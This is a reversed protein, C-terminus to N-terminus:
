TTRYTGTILIRGSQGIDTVDVSTLNGGSNYLVQWATGPTAAAYGCLGSRPTTWNNDGFIAITPVGTTDVAIINFPMGGITLTGSGGSQSTLSLDVSITVVNGIKTYSGKQLAYVFTGANTLTPTFTGEEYDNLLESTMGAANANAAFSIGATAGGLILNGGLWLAGGVSAGGAVQLAGTATASAQTVNTITVANAVVGSSTTIGIVRASGGLWLAGGVSAGGAVQLAGTATANAQTTDSIKVASALTSATTVEKSLPNYFLFHPTSGNARIPSVLFSNATSTDLVSGSANLIISNAAQNTQGAGNGIAIANNGQSQFGAGQGIAIASDGQRSSGAFYGISVAYQTQTSTSAYSGIAVAGTGQNLSGASTGIAVSEAGQGWGAQSGLAISSGVVGTIGGITSTTADLLVYGAGTTVSITGDAAVNVNTGIKVGGLQAATAPTSVYTSYTATLASNVLTSTNFYLLGATTATFHSSLQVVGLQTGSATTVSRVATQVLTSTNIAITGDIDISVGSGIKVGGLQTPSAITAIFTAYTTSNVTINSTDVSITGDLQAAIGSGIKVGGLRTDTATTTIFTATNAYLSNRVLTATNLSVTGDITVNLGSGIKVGGLTGAAAPTLINIATAVVTSTDLSLIADGDILFGTGIQVVGTQTATATTLSRVATAVLTATNLSITGDTAANIGTGIKVAGLQSNTATSTIQVATAVLTATNLSITGDTAANIGTGIKVAGLQANTATTSIFRATTATTVLTATNFSITGDVAANIGTGIKVGGLVVNTATPLNYSATPDVSITGDANTIFGTGIKVGGLRSNTATTSVFQATTATTVLTATNFSITGDGAALLNSGVKVGGLIVSTATQLAFSATTVSITGDASVGIGTGIKVGGLTTVSATSLSYAIIHENTITSWNSTVSLGTSAQFSKNFILYGSNPEVKIDPEVPNEKVGGLVLNTATNLVYYFGATNVSITGSSSVDIGSGITVAGLTTTSAPTTIRVAETMLTNTNVYVTGNTFYSLGAGVIMGGLVTNNAPLLSIAGNQNVIGGNSLTNVIRVLGLTSTTAPPISLRGNGDITVNTGILIGGIHNGTATTLVNVADVSISMLTATNVKISGTTTSYISDGDIFAGGLTATTVVPSNKVYATGGIRVDRGIGAGGAVQLAGSNTSVANDSNTTSIIDDTVVTSTTIITNQITLTNAYIMGGVHLDKAIGVGGAIVVSGNTTATSQTADSVTLTGNLSINKSVGLGGAIVVAGTTAVTSQTTNSFNVPVSTDFSSTTIVTGNVTLNNASVYGGVNINAGVGMGGRVILAGTSTSVSINTADTLELGGTVTLNTFATEDTATSGNFNAWYVKNAGNTVLIQGPLGPKGDILIKGQISLEGGLYLGGAVGAGGAVQLAGTNTSTSATTGTLKLNAFSLTATSNTFYMNGGVVVDKKILAGGEIYLAGTTTSAQTTANIRVQQPNGGITMVRLNAFNPDKINFSFTGYSEYTNVFNANSGSSTREIIFTPDSGIKLANSDQTISIQGNLTQNTDNRVLSNGSVKGTIQNIYNASDSVGNFIADSRINIGKQIPINVFGPIDGTSFAADAIVIQSTGDVDVIVVTHPDNASDLVTRIKPGSSSTDSYEPGVVKWENQAYFFVQNRNLDVWIDGDVADNPEDVQQYIGNIPKWNVNSAAGDNIRLKKSANDYWLQGEIPNEPPVTNASNELLHIFNEAVFQGYGPYNRGVLTLGGTGVGKYITNDAVTIPYSTKAPDSYYIIYSM